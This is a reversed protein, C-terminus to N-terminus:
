ISRRRKPGAHVDAAVLVALSELQDSWFRKLREVVKANPLKKHQVTVQAKGDGKPYFMVDVHTDALPADLWTIRISRDPTANRIKVAKADLWRARRRADTWAGYLTAVPANLTRSRSAEYGAPTEHKERLGRAQEYGVTVMQQWWPGVGHDRSVIAVIQRHDMKRAGAADLLKLWESWTRGTAKQVAADSIGAVSRGSTSTKMAPLM